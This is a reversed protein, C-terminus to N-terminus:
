TRRHIEEGVSFTVKLILEQHTDKFVCGFGYYIVMFIYEPSPTLAEKKRGARSGVYICEIERQRQRETERQRHRRACTHTHTLSHTNTYFSM